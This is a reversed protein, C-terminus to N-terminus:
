PISTQQSDKKKPDPRWYSDGAGEHTIPLISINITIGDMNQLPAILLTYEGPSIFDKRKRAYKRSTCSISQKDFNKSTPLSSGAKLFMWLPSTSYDGNWFTTITLTNAEGFSFPV